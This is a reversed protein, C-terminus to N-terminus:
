IIALHDGSCYWITGQRIIENWYSTIKLEMWWSNWYYVCMNKVMGWNVMLWGSLWKLTNYALNSLQVSFSKTFLCGLICGGGGERSGGGRGVVNILTWLVQSQCALHIGRVLWPLFASILFSGPLLRFDFHEWVTSKFNLQSCACDVSSRECLIESVILQRIPM